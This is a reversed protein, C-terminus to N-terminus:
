LFDFTSRKIITTVPLRQKKALSPLRM